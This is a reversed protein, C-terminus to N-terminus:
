KSADKQGNIKITETICIRLTEVFKVSPFPPLFNFLGSAGHALLTDTWEAGYCCENTLFIVSSQSKERIMRMADVPDVEKGARDRIVANLYIVILDPKVYCEEWDNIEQFYHLEVRHDEGLIEQLPASLTFLEIGLTRGVIAVSYSKMGRETPPSEPRKLEPVHKYLDALEYPASLFHVGSGLYELDLCSGQVAIIPKKDRKYLDALVSAAGFASGDDARRDWKINGLYLYVFDYPNGEALALLASSTGFYIFRLHRTDGLGCAALMHMMGAFHDLALLLTYDPKTSYKQKPLWQGSPEFHTPRGFNIKAGRHIELAASVADPLRAPDSQLDVMMDVGAQELRSAFGRPVSRTAVIIATNKTARLHRVLKLTRDLPNETTNELKLYDPFLVILNLDYISASLRIARESDQSLFATDLETSCKAIASRWAALEAPQKTGILATFKIESTIAEM